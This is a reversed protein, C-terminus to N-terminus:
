ILFVLFTVYFVENKGLLIFIITLIICLCMFNELEEKDIIIEFNNKDKELVVKDRRYAIMGIMSRSEISMSEYVENLHM